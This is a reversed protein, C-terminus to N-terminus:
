SVLATLKEAIALAREKEQLAASQLQKFAEVAYAHAEAEAHKAEKVAHLQEVKNVIDSIISDVSTKSSFFARIRSFLGRV